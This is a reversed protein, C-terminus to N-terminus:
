GNAIRYAIQISRDQLRAIRDSSRHGLALGEAVAKQRQKPTGHHIMPLPSTDGAIGMINLIRPVDQPIFFDMKAALWGAILDAHIEAVIIRGDKTLGEFIGAHYQYLHATEHALMAMIASRGLTPDAVSHELWAAGLLIKSRADPDDLAYGTGPDDIVSVETMDNDRLDMHACLQVVTPTLDREWAGKITEGIFTPSFFVGSYAATARCVACGFPAKYRTETGVRRLLRVTCILCMLPNSWILERRKM